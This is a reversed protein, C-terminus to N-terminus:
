ATEKFKYKAPHLIDDLRKTLVNHIKDHEKPRENCVGRIQIIQGSKVNIEITAIREDQKTRCVLILSDKHSWYMKVCHHMHEGEEALEHASFIPRIIFDPTPIFICFYKKHYKIYYEDHSKYEEILDKIAKKNDHVKKRAMLVNHWHNLDDPCLYRPNHTDIHLAKMFQLTDKYMSWDDIQYHNRFVAIRIQKHYQRMDVISMAKALKIQGQKLLTEFYPHAERKQKIRMIDEIERIDDFINAKTKYNAIEERFWPTLSIIQHEDINYNIWASTNDKRITLEGWRSLPNYKRNPMFSTSHAFTIRQGSKHFWIQYNDPSIVYRAPQNNKIHMEVFNMRIVQWNGCRQYQAFYGVYCKYGSNVVTVRKGCHPCVAGRKVIDKAYPYENLKEKRFYKKYQGIKNGCHTCTLEQNKDINVPLYFNKIVRETDIKVPRLRKFQELTEQQIKTLAM